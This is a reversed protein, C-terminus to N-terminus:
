NLIWRGWIFMRAMLLHMKSEGRGGEEEKERRGGGGKERERERERESVILNIPRLRVFGIYDM